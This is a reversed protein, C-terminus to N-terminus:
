SYKSTPRQQYHCFKHIDLAVWKVNPFVKKKLAM